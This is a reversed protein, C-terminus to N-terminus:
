KEYRKHLLYYVTTVQNHKNNNLCKQAYDKKFGFQELMEIIKPEIPIQNTGIILGENKCIPQYQKYWPHKKIDDTTYRTNPDTNLVKKM